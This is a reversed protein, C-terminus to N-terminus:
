LQEIIEQIQKHHRREHHGLFSVAKVGNFDGLFPHLLVIQSLRSRGHEDSFAKLQGRLRNYNAIVIDKPPPDLPEVSKPARVRLVRRGVLFSYPILRHLLRVRRPPQTLKHELKQMIHQEMLCLHHVVEAVSWRDPAPRRAFTEADLPTIADLLQRHVSDLQRHIRDM